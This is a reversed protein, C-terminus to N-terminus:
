EVRLEVSGSHSNFEPTYLCQIEAIGSQYKGRLQVRASTEFVYTGKPLYEIFFHSATDRTSEYYALGDQFRYGSLVNVPETGSGRQDKLHVYELDRDTRLEVRTVLEDGPKLVDGVALQKLEPGAKGNSKVFLSKKLTLPNGEHPTVKAIDELYQWHLSGWSVGKDPKTLTVSGMAPLVESGAFRQEYFGTGAEVKGPKVETGGLSLTVLADSGLLDDGGLLLAYIADATSKTSPWAQTQRQKLLWVRCDDASTQDNGIERFAEIMMAQTEIPARYWWWHRETDRWYRGLEEDNVSRELLSAVIAGPTTKDGFRKLGLAVHGQSLRPLGVWTKVALGRFYDIAPQHEAVVPRRDLFFSRAYLYLAETSGFREVKDRLCEQHRESIWVDLRDLARLALGDDIAVGLHGLRGFGSVLYLTIFENERGGPFWPWAGNDIQMSELKTLSSATENELRNAEFLLGVNKRAQTEDKAERLWPTEEILVSKLEANKLLPSDLAEPQAERWLDFVRRIKPNSTALHRALANAYLRNFVQEACEYPYEMLYPLSQVAYWAPQSVVQATLSQHQLTDSKASELLKPLTFTKEGTDRMPLTISETLLIRRSLVPLWGEEGDSLTGTSAVARYQLFSQGDPVTIKWSYTRSENAPLDLDQEPTANGLAPNADALTAADSFELRVKGKVAVTAKNTVKVTFEVLDGERIFRPPNPQVMLDKSTITEGTLLGSRLQRDHAFGLFKWTTLAEPMTFELRVTGNENALLHPFFFATEDLNKRAGVESWDIAAGEPPSEVSSKAVAGGGAPPAAPAAQATAAFSDASAESVMDLAVAGVAAGRSMMSSKAYLGAHRSSSSLAPLFRPWEPNSNETQYQWQSLTQFYPAWDNHFQGYRRSSDYYFANFGGPWTHPLFADLSADYMAAVMEVPERQPAGEVVLTWTEGAGPELKNRMREWRISYEKNSWPVSITRTTLHARNERIATIYLTFGGRQEETVPVTLSQQTAGRETWFRKVIVGRHEVEVFARGADYGTGWIAELSQGPELTWSAASLHQAVRVPFTTSAPDLVRLPLLATVPRGNRDKTDLVARYEGASLKVELTAQGNDDTQFDDRQVVEGLPWQNPDSLDPANEKAGGPLPWQRSGLRPRPVKGPAVLRHITVTGNATLAEGDLSTTSVSLSIPKNVTQWEDSSLAARMTTFGATVSKSGSRTEGTTDTVDAHLTFDFSPEAKEEVSADPEATFRIEFSGDAGTKAIGNAIEKAGQDTPPYFWGCWRLWAPWRAERTVRWHVEAGDIAAGAYSEAKGTVSVIEGLRAAIKPANLTVQFKPRKYEEMSISVAGNGEEIRMSGTVRGKPATFAGSFGGRENTKVELAEVEEGNADRLRITLKKNPITRYINRGTDAHAHVGKFRITQGPRYLSRDTFLYTKVPDPEYLNSWLHMQSTALTADGHKALFIVAGEKAKQKFTGLDDTKKTADLKWAGNQDVSWVELTAGAIPEGSLADLVFGEAGEPAQRTILALPSVWLTTASLQNDETAFDAGASAILLYFGPKQDAPAQIGVSRQRYDETKELKTTWAAVPVQQLAALIAERNIQGPTEWRQGTLAWERPVLRFHAAEINRYTIEIEPGAANWVQETGVQLERSEVRNVLNRCASAFVSDPFREAGALAVRRAEVYDDAAMLREALAAAVAVGAISDGHSKLLTALHELARADANVGKAESAAWEIRDLDVLVRASPDADAAHFKLLDQYLAIARLTPSETDSSDPKWALFEEMEGLAPSKADFSFADQPAAGAQEAATYFDLAEHALFDYLTPRFHEPLNGKVLITDFDSLPIAQLAEANELAAGYRADIEGFLRALDWTEFDDDAADSRRTRELIRWRNAQFYERYASALLTKLLPAIEAPADALAKEYLRIKEEPKYGQIQTEAVVRYAITKALEPWAKEASAATEITALVELASRPLAGSLHEEVQKWEAERPAAFSTLPSLAFLLALCALAVRLPIM